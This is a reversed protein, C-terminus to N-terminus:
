ALRCTTPPQVACDSCNKSALIVDILWCVYSSLFQIFVKAIASKISRSHDGSEDLAPGPDNGDDRTVADDDADADTPTTVNEQFDRNEAVTRESSSIM